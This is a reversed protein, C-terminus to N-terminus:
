KQTEDNFFYLYLETIYEASHLLFFPSKWYCFFIAAIKLIEPIYTIPQIIHAFAITFTWATVAILFIGPTNPTFKAFALKKM